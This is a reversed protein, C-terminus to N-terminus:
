PIEYFHGKWEILTGSLDIPEVFHQAGDEREMLPYVGRPATKTNIWHRLMGLVAEDNMRAGAGMSVWFMEMARGTGIRLAKYPPKGREFLM